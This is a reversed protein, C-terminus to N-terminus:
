LGREIYRAVAIVGLFSMLGYVLAIDIYIMRGLLHTLFVIGSLSLITMTDLAVVRDALEPGAIIRYFSIVFALLAISGAISYIFDAM